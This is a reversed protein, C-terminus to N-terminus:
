EPLSFVQFPDSYVTEYDDDVIDTMIILKLPVGKQIPTGKMIFNITTDSNAKINYPNINYNPLIYQIKQEKSVKKATRLAKFFLTDNNLYASYVANYYYPEKSLAVAEVTFGRDHPTLNRLKVSLLEGSSLTTTFVSDIVLVRGESPKLHQGYFPISIFLLFATILLFRTMNNLTRCHRHLTTYLTFRTAM